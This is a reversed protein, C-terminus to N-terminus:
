GAAGNPWRGRIVRLKTSYWEIPFNHYLSRAEKKKQLSTIDSITLMWKNHQNSTKPTKTVSKTGRAAATLLSAAMPTNSRTSVSGNISSAISATAATVTSKPQIYETHVENGIITNVLIPADL